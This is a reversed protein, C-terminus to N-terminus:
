LKEKKIGSDVGEGARPADRDIVDLAHVRRTTFLVNGEEDVGQADYQVFEKNNKIWKDTVYGSIKMKQGPKMPRVNEFEWKYFVGRINYNRSVLWRPPRYAIQPPVIRGGFVTDDRMYFENYDDDVQCQKTVMDPEIVWDMEGMYLGVEIDEYHTRKGKEDFDVRTIKTDKNEM